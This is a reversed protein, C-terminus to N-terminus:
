ARARVDRARGAWKEAGDGQQPLVLRHVAEGLARPVGDWADSACHGQLCADALFADLCPRPLLVLVRLRLVGLLVDQLGDKAAL